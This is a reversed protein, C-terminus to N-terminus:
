KENLTEHVGLDPEDFPSLELDEPSEEISKDKIPEPVHDSTSSSYDDLTICATEDRPVDVSFSNTMYDM